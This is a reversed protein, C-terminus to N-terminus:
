IDLRYGVGRITKLYRPNKPDEEIAERLWSIHVDLTRTDGIYDTEWIEKFLQKREVVEGPHEMFAKLLLLLRPTLKSEKDNCRVRKREVDMRIPGCRVVNDGEGPLIRLIRNNLKRVTFPMTLIIDAQIDSSYDKERDAIVLIPLSNKQSRINSCIRKGNSRMFLTNIIVIDPDIKDLADLAQKGTNVAQIQYGKDRLGPIFSPSNARKSEIWLITAMLYLGM